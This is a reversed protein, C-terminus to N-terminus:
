HRVYAFIGLVTLLVTVIMAVVFIGAASTLHDALSDHHLLAVMNEEKPDEGRYPHLALM